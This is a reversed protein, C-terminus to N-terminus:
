TRRYRCFRLSTDKDIVQQEDTKQWIRSDLQPFFADGEVDRDIHTLLVTDTLPLTQEYIQQGGVVFIRLEAPQSAIASQIDHFVRVREDHFNKDRTVILHSREPLPKGFQQLISQYTVRGMLIPHGLTAQKFFKLDAPYHWPMVGKHGIVQKQGAAAAILTLPM